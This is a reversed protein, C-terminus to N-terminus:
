VEKSYNPNASPPAYIPGGLYKFKIDPYQTINATIKVPIFKGQPHSTKWDFSVRAAEYQQRIEGMDWSIDIPAVHTLGLSGSYRQMMKSYYVDPINAGDQINKLQNGMEAYQRTAEMAAARGVEKMYQTQANVGRSGMSARREYGDLRLRTPTTSMTLEGGSKTATHTPLEQSYELRAPQTQMEYRIPTSTYELLLM